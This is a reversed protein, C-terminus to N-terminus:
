LEQNIKKYMPGLYNKDFNGPYLNSVFSGFSEWSPAPENIPDYGIVYPNSSFTQAVKTWYSIFKDQM